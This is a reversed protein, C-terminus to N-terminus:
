RSKEEPVKVRWACESCAVYAPEDDDKVLFLLDSGCEPCAATAETDREFLDIAPRPM